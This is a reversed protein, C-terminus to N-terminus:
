KNSSRHITQFRCSPAGRKQQLIEEVMAEDPNSTVQGATGIARLVVGTSNRLVWDSSGGVGQRVVGDVNVKLLLPNPYSPLIHHSSLPPHISQISVM